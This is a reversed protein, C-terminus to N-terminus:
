SHSRASRMQHAAIYTGMPPHSYFYRSIGTLISQALQRQYGPNRLKLEEHPNSIFGTEVLVSPIDPSKLVMFRAQEVRRNHLITMHKLNGLIYDGLQLSSGITATQSLDLLVSRIMGDHDDLESLDVGGLESYNEKQALWHAAESTAGRQSLAFVSAGHSQANRYADAHISVFIDANYKRALNLRGRLPIYYDSARTLVARMGPQQNVLRALERSIQLVVDKENSKHRGHAGPDKGGHGPDIVVIVDRNRSPMRTVRSPRRQVKLVPLPVSSVSNIKVPTSVRTSSTTMQRSSVEPPGSITIVLAPRQQSLTMWRVSAERHHAVDMVMRLHEQDESARLKLIGSGQTSLRRLTNAGVTSQLDVVVRSPNALTFLRYSAQQNMQIIVQTQQANVQLNANLVRSPAALAHVALSLCALGLWKAYKLGM